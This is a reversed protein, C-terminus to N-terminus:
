VHEIQIVYCSRIATNDDSSEMNSIAHWIDGKMIVMMNSHPKIKQVLTDDSDNEYILLEGGVLNNSIYDYIICTYCKFGM